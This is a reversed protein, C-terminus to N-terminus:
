LIPESPVSSRLFVRRPIGAHVAIKEILGISLSDIQDFLRCIEAPLVFDELSLEPRQAVEADL